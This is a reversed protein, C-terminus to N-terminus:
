NFHISWGYLVYQRLCVVRFFLYILAANAKRDSPTWVPPIHYKKPDRADYFQEMEDSLTPSADSALSYVEERLDADADTAVDDLLKNLMEMVVKFREDNEHINLMHVLGLRSRSKFFSGKGLGINTAYDMSFDIVYRIFELEDDILEVNISDLRVFTEACKEICKQELIISLSRLALGVDENEEEQSEDM